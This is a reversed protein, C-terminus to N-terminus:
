DHNSDMHLLWNPCSGLNQMKSFPFSLAYGLNGERLELTRFIMKLLIRKLEINPSNKFIEGANRGIELLEFLIENVHEDAKNHAAIQEQLKRKERQLQNKKNEYIEKEIEGDIFMNVLKDLRDTTKTVQGQLIGIEKNRFEIEDKKVEKLRKKYADIRSQPMKLTQLVKAVQNSICEERFFLRKGSKDFCIVYMFRGKKLDSSCIRGTNACRIVGRYLYDKSSYKFPKKDAGLRVQQCKDWLERSIIPEYVHPVIKGRSNMEGYYFPNKLMNFLVSTAAPKGSRSKFGLRDAIKKLEHISTSGLSYIEFLRKLIPGQIDDPRLWARGQENRCNIYGTPAQGCFEGRSIKLDTSRRVNDKMSLIYSKAVFVALDWRQSDISNYGQGIIMNERVFHLEIQGEKILKDLLPSENYSRQVRDVADAVVAITEKQKKCFNIMEMFEKRKGHTSSEVIKYIQIVDLDKRKAYEILRSTQAPISLNDEQEKSSVRTLIVAKM